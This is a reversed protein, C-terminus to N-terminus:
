TRENNAYFLISNWLHKIVNNYIWLKNGMYPYGGGECQQMVNALKFYYQWVKEGYTVYWPNGEDLCNALLKNERLILLYINCLHRTYLNDDFLIKSQIEIWCKTM